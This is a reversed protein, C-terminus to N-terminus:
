RTREKETKQTMTMGINARSPANRDLMKLKFSQGGQSLSSLKERLVKECKDLVKPNKIKKSMGEVLVEIQKEEKANFSM